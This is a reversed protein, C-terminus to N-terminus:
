QYANLLSKYIGLLVFIVVDIGMVITPPNNWLNTFYRM